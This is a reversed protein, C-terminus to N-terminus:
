GSREGRVGFDVVELDRAAGADLTLRLMTRRQHFGHHGVAGPNLYLVGFADRAVELVHSHGCVLVQPRQAPDRLRELIESRYRKPHGVIHRMWVSVGDRTFRQDEPFELQLNSDDVNGSVAVLPKVAQLARAVTLSGIDGAHWIEDTARCYELIEDDVFSHTDSLLAIRTPM